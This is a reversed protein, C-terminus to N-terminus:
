LARTDVYAVVLIPAGGEDSCFAASCATASKASRYDDPPYQHKLRLPDLIPDSSPIHREPEM